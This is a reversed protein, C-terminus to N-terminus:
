RQRRWRAAMRSPSGTLRRVKPLSVGGRLTFVRIGCTLLTAAGLRWNQGAGVMGLAVFLVGGVLSATAYVERTLIAPIEGVLLDRMAGGGCATLAAMLVVTLSNAGCQEAVAAGLATFIGLGAADAWLVADWRVAIRRAFFFVILGGAVCAVLDDIQVLAAPPHRGLLVDRLIGGGVGTVAALVLVGLLDLEYKVARFAGAVAFALTGAVDLWHLIM